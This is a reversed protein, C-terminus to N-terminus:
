FGISVGGIFHRGAQPYYYAWTNEVGQEYWIGGYANNSYLRNLINNVTFHFNIETKKKTKIGFDIRFDSVHYAEIMRDCSATNDFYQDGVYKNNLSFQLNAIPSYTFRLAGIINPSYAIDTEGLVIEEYTENWDDDYHSAWFSFNKIKNQSLSLNLDMRFQKIPKFAAMVEVGRRFSEPVNTMIDYGVSSKEGTPILQNKYDMYYFNIGASYSYDTFEYGLELNRLQEPIPQKTPDGTADKFHTRTPERNAIGFSLYTNMKDDIRYFLGAKPNVFHFVHEQDLIKQTGDPMLDNDNGSMRYFINRYQIDGYGYLGDSIEYNLKVFANGDTKLGNNHYWEHNMETEGAYRMWIIRGFHDGDYLNWAAGVSINMNSKTYNLSITAGYFDNEMMRRRVMDMRSITVPDVPITDGNSIVPSPIITFPELGYRNLRENVRFQEYFGAGRTFHIASNFDLRSSLRTSYLLQFHTQKYNDTQDHYYQLNGQADYYVGAPNFTRNTELSDIPCGWWSIGTRERGHMFNFRVFSKEGHWAGTFMAAQNDSFSNYVYGDSQLNTLRVDFSFGNDMIGTGANVTQQFTNFSGGSLSINAYPGYSVTTTQFNISAGFAAAGNTSTGVGRQIQVNSVSSAFDPMNVWFVTQSEGDNLPIGNITVNIRSPDTGRIRYNTYGVGTGSESTAVFSPTLELLYPIDQVANRQRLESGDINTFAMPMNEGVRTARVVIEETLFSESQLVIQGLDVDRDMVKVDRVLTKYGIFSIELKSNGARLRLNFNGEADSSTGVFTNHVIISAGPLPNGESDTIKGKVNQSFIQGCVAVLLIILYIRKM